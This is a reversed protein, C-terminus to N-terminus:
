IIKLIKRLVDDPTEGFVIIMPEKGFDGKHYIADPIKTSNKVAKKIGWEITSDKIKVNKPEENRDYSSVILKSKKIKSITTNQYKLNIASCIKPYRKNMILLATAVHKSGGYTLEGAVTASKGSKVIRGSIGLIDKISKPKQKSYVFNIQCEPINKYINKIQIFKDIAESLDRNIVDQIETIAIGKGIKKANKISNQTFQQAFRLSDKITKNKALAFIIAASYNCGSGHNVRNIKNGSIFYEKNKELIFDSITKDGTVVGTIVVNKAGMKQIKKAVNQISKKSNIKTKSLIEAEFKNPTIVTALPVIYKQFDSIATKEILAGGTTSKIVPDVVIPIKVKRLKNNLIKIIQSNYVMGIKIGDIKFDSMVSEIQDKLIKQSVPEAIGFNSTNQSTISTIVTLGHVNFSSFTKIDSQIGAGSSPDSGGISLLNM